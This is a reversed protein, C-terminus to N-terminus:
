RKGRTVVFTKSGHRIKSGPPFAKPPADLPIAKRSRAKKAAASAALKKALAPPDGPARSLPTPEEDDWPENINCTCDNNRPDPQTHTGHVRCGRPEAAKKDRRANFHATREAEITAEGRDAEDIALWVLSRGVLDLLHGRMAPYAKTPDNMMADARLENFLRQVERMQDSKRYAPLLDKAVDLVDDHASNLCAEFRDFPSM